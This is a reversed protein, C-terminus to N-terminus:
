SARLRLEVFLSVELVHHFNVVFFFFLAVIFPPIFVKDIPLQLLDATSHIVSPHHVFSVTPAQPSMWRRSVRCCEHWIEGLSQCMVDCMVGDRSRSRSLPTIILPFAYLAFCFLLSMPTLTQDAGWINSDSSHRLQWVAVTAFVTIL